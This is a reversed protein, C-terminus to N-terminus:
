TGLRKQLAACRLLRTLPMRAPAAVCLPAALAFCVLSRLSSACAGFICLLTADVRANLWSVACFKFLSRRARL